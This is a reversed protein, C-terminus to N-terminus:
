RDDNHQAKLRDCERKIEEVAARGREIEAKQRANDAELARLQCNSRSIACSPSPSLDSAFVRVHVCTSYLLM